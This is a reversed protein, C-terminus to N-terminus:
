AYLCPMSRVLVHFIAYLLYFMSKLLAHCAHAFIVRVDVYLLFFFFFSRFLLFCPMFFGLSTSRFMSVHSFLSRSM